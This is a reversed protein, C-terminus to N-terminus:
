TEKHFRPRLRPANCPGREPSSAPWEKVSAAARRAAGISLAAALDPRARADPFAARVDDTAHSRAACAPFDRRSFHRIEPAGRGYARLM